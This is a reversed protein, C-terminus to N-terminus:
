GEALDLFAVGNVRRISFVSEQEAGRKGKKKKKKQKRASKQLTANWAEYDVERAKFEKRVDEGCIKLFDDVLRNMGYNPVPKHKVKQGCTVCTKIGKGIEKIIHIIAHMHFQLMFQVKASCKSGIGCVNTAHEM